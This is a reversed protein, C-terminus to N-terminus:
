EGAAEGMPHTLARQRPPPQTEPDNQFPASVEERLPIRVGAWLTQLHDLLIDKFTPCVDLISVDTVHWENVVCSM